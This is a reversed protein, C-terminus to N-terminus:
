HQHRRVRLISAAAARFFLTLRFLMLLFLPSAPDTATVNWPM